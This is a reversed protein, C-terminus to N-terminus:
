EVKRRHDKAEEETAFKRDDRNGDGDGDFIVVIFKRGREYPGLVRREKQRQPMVGGRGGAALDGKGDLRIREAVGRASRTRRLAEDAILTVPRRAAMTVAVGSAHLLRM